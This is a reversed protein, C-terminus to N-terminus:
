LCRYHWTTGGLIIVLSICSGLLVWGAIDLSRYHVRCQELNICIKEGKKPNTKVKTLLAHAVLRHLPQVAAAAATGRGGERGGPSLNHLLLRVSVRARRPLCQCSSKDWQSHREQECATEQEGFELLPCGCSCTSPDWRTQPLVFAPSKKKEGAVASRSSRSATM